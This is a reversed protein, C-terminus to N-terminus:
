RHLDREIEEFALSKVSKSEEVLRAYLGPNSEMQELAGPSNTWM